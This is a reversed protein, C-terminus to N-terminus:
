IVTATNNTRQEQADATVRYTISLVVQASLGM